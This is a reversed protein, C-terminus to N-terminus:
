DNVRYPRGDEFIVGELTGNKIEEFRKLLVLHPEKLKFNLSIPKRVDATALKQQKRIYRRDLVPEGNAIKLVSIEGCGLEHM